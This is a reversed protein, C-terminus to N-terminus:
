PYHCFENSSHTTDLLSCLHLSLHSNLPSLQSQFLFVFLKYKWTPCLVDALIHSGLVYSNYENTVLIFLCFAGTHSSLLVKIQKWCNSGRKLATCTVKEKAGWGVLYFTINERLSFKCISLVSLCWFLSCLSFVIQLGLEPFTQITSYFCFTFIQLNWLNVFRILHKLQPMKSNRSFYKNM